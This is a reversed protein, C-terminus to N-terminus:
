KLKNLINIIEEAAEELSDNIVIYDYGCSKEIEFKAIELRRMLDDEDETGRGRLRCELVDLSPPMLFIAISDKYLEKIKAAGHVEIKLIVTKGDSLWKDVPAKPTGYLNKGYKAFELVEGSDILTEFENTTVFFYDEGNVEGDRKQRTTMSISRQLSCDKQILIDLLTDKGVGSPGSFLVLKGKNNM